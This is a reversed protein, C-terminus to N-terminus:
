ASRTRIGAPSPSSTHRSSRPRSRRPARCLRRLRHCRRQRHIRELQALRLQRQADRRARDAQEACRWRWWRLGADLGLTDVHPLPQRGPRVCRRRLYVHTRLRRRVRAVRLGRHGGQRRGLVRRLRGCGHRRGLGAVDADGVVRDAVGAPRPSRQAAHHRGCPLRRHYGDPDGPGSRNGAADFAVVGFSYSRGCAVDFVHSTASAETGVKVGNAYVDYGTVGTDDAAADWTVTASGGDISVGLSGPQGPATVDTGAPAFRVDLPHSWSSANGARDLARVAYTHWGFSSLDGDTFSTGATSGVM